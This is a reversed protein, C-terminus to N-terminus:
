GNSITLNKKMKPLSHDLKEVLIEAIKHAAKGDWFPPTIGETKGSM